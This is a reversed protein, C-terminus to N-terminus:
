AFLGWTQQARFGLTLSWTKGWTAALFSCCLKLVPDSLCLELKDFSIGQGGKEWGLDVFITFELNFSRSRAIRVRKPDCKVSSTQILLDLSLHKIFQTFFRTRFFCGRKNMQSSNSCVTGKVARHKCLSHLLILTGEPNEENHALFVRGPIHKLIRNQYESKCDTAEEHYASLFYILGKNKQFYVAEHDRLSTKEGERLAQLSPESSVRFCFKCNNWPSLPSCSTPATSSGGENVSARTRSVHYSPLRSSLLSGRQCGGSLWWLILIQFSCSIQSTGTTQIWNRECYM